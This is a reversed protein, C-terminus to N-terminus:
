NVGTASVINQLDIVANRAASLVNSADVTPYTKIFAVADRMSQIARRDAMQMSTVTARCNVAVAHTICLKKYTREGALAIGYASEIGLVTNLTVENSINLSPGPCGPLLLPLAMVTNRLRM